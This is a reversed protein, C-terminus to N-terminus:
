RNVPYSDTLIKIMMASCQSTEPLIIFELTFCLLIRSKKQQSKYMISKAERSFYEM